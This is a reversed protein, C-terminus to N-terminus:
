PIKAHSSNLRTSKRDQKGRPKLLGLDRVVELLTDFLLREAGGALHRTRFESLVSGDYGLHDLPLSLAYTWRGPPVRRARMATAAQRDTLHEGAQLSTALALRHPSAAAHGVNPSRAAFDRDAYIMGLQDRLQM